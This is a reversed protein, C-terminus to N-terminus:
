PSSHGPTRIPVVSLVGFTAALGLFLYAGGAGAPTVRAATIVAALGRVILRPNCGV